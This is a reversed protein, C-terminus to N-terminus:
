SAQHIVTELMEMVFRQKAKPLQSIQELQQQLRPAPGRKGKSGAPEESLMEQLHASKARALPPSRCDRAIARCRGKQAFVQSGAWLGWM